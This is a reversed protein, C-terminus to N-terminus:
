EFIRWLDDETSCNSPPIERQLTQHPKSVALVNFLGPKQSHTYWAHESFDVYIGTINNTLKQAGKNPWIQDLNYVRLKFIVQEEGNHKRNAPFHLFTPPAYPFAHLATLLESVEKCFNHSVEKCLQAPGERRVLIDYKLCTKKSWVPM